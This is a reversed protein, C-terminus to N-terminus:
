DRGRETRPTDAQVPAPLLEGKFTLWITMVAIGAIVLNGAAFLWPALVSIPGTDGRVAPVRVVAGPAPIAQRSIRLRPLPWQLTSSRSSPM